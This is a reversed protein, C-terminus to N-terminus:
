QNKIEDLASKNADHLDTVKKEVFTQFDDGSMDYYEKLYQDDSLNKEKALKNLAKYFQNATKELDDTTIYSIENTEMLAKALDYEKSGVALDKQVAAMGAAVVKKLDEQSEVDFYQNVFDDDLSPQVHKENAMRQIENWAVDDANVYEVEAQVQPETKFTGDWASVLKGIINFYACAFLIGVCLASILLLRLISKVVDM